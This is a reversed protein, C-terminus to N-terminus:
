HELTTCLYGVRCARCRADLPVIETKREEGVRRINGRAGELYGLGTLAPVFQPDLAVAALCADHAETLLGARQKGVLM